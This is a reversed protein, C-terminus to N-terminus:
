FRTMAPIPYRLTQAVELLAIWKSQESRSVSWVQMNPPAGHNGLIVMLYRTRDGMFAELYAETTRQDLGSPRPYREPHTHWLGIAHLGLDYQLLRERHAAVIDPNFAHRARCDERAPGKAITIILGHSAPDVAFLEGGSEKQWVWRQLRSYIHNLAPTTFLVYRRYDPYFFLRNM